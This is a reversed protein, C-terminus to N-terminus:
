DYLFRFRKVWFPIENDDPNDYMIYFWGADNIKLDSITTYIGDESYSVTREGEPFNATWGLYFYQCEVEAQATEETCSMGESNFISLTVQSGRWEQSVILRTLVKEVSVGKGYRLKGNVLRCTFLKDMDKKAFQKRVQMGESACAKGPGVQPAAHAPSPMLVGSLATAVVIALAARHVQSLRPM